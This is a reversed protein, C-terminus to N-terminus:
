CNDTGFPNDGFDGQWTANRLYITTGNDGNANLVVNQVDVTTTDVVLTATHTGSLMSASGILVLTGGNNWYLGMFGTGGPNTYEVTVERFSNPAILEKQIVIASPTPTLQWGEGAVWTGYTAPVFDGDTSTFDDHWCWACTCEDCDGTDDRVVTANSMLVEGFLNVLNILTNYVTGPHEVGIQAMIADRQELSIQGDIGIHCYIICQISAWTPEDFAEDIEVQGVDVLVDFLILAVGALIAGVPTLALLLAMINTAFQAANVSNQFILLTDKFEAVIRAAGDCAPDPADTPPLRYADNHRPDSAPDDVWSVGGDPSTQYEGTEPDIRATAPILELPTLWKRIIAM